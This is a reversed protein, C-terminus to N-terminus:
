RGKFPVAEWKRALVQRVSIHHLPKPEIHAAPKNGGQLSYAGPHTTTGIVRSDAIMLAAICVMIIARKKRVKSMLIRLAFSILAISICGLSSICFNVAFM